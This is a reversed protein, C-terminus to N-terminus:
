EVKQGRIITFAEEVEEATAPEEFGGQRTRFGIAMQAVRLVNEATVETLGEFAALTKAARVMVIDPRHGDINLAICARVVVELLRDPITVNVL